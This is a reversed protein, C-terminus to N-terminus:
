DWRTEIDYVGSLILKEVNHALRLEKDNPGIDYGLLMRNINLQKGESEVILEYGQLVYINDIAYTLPTIILSKEACIALEFDKLTLANMPRRGDLTVIITGREHKEIIERDHAEMGRDEEVIPGIYRYRGTAYAVVNELM